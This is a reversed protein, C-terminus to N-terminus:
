YVLSNDPSGDNICIVEFDSFTQNKLSDLAISLFKEVNYVPMIVSFIPEVLNVM